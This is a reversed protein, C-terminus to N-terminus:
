HTQLFGSANPVECDIGFVRVDDHRAREPVCVARLLLTAYKARGVAAIM